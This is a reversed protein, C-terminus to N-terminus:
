EKSTLQLNYDQLEEKSLSAPSGTLIERGSNSKPFAIVDRISTTDMLLACMRDLGFAIGGHPPCGLALADILHQFEAISSDSLNLIDKFIQLQLDPTHIRISGGGLEVGNVVCDYHQGRVKDPNSKLLSIDEDVPATFPHHSCEYKIEKINPIRSLLPFQTVWLFDFRNPDIHLKGYNKLLNACHLRLKGLISQSLFLDAECSILILDGPEAHLSKSLNAYISPYNLLIQHVPTKWKYINDHHEIKEKTVIGTLLGSGAMGLAANQLYKYENKSIVEGLGKINIAKVKGGNKINEQFMNFIITSNEDLLCDTIDQIEFPFRTDPKDSGFRSLADHYSMQKFPTQLEIGRTEKWISSLLKEMIQYMQNVDTCSLELDLQTFEPQRDARLDEDRYCRAIQYYRDIGGAMLLQKYQQPSQVLAYFQGPNSYSPVIFERAGESTRKFLTPTEVELFQNSDLFNRIVKYIKARTRLSNQM